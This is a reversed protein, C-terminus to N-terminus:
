APHVRAPRPPTPRPWLVAAALILALSALGARIAARRRMRRRIGGLEPAPGLGEAAKVVAQAARRGRSDVTM